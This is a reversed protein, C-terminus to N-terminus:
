ADLAEAAERAAEHSRFTTASVILGDRLRCLVSAPFDLALGTSGSTMTFDYTMAITDPGIPEYRRNRYAVQFNDILDDMWSLIEETGDFTRGEIVTGVASDFVCDPAVVAAFVERIAKLDRAELADFFRNLHDELNPASM